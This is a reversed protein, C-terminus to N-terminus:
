RVFNLPNNPKGDVRVEFHLHPGTSFGTSGEYGVVDGKQVNAGTSTALKSMHAYLTALGNGHGVIVVKGYGGYWGTYLVNGSDAARIPSHNPGALDIGTHFKRVRFIPHRRWGFPSTISARLPMSMTGSGKTVVKDSGQSQSAKMMAMIQSELQNSERSLQHEAQEYFSRQSRLKEAVEEQESKEKNLLMAKKAIESVVDGLHMKQIGLQNKQAALKQAKVRLDAILKRDTEAVREQFYLLDMLQQLSAVQFMMDLLGLRQGEYMERLRQAAQLSMNNENAETKKLTAETHVIKTETHHLENKNSKLTINTHRLESTIKNLKALAKREKEKALLLKQHTEKKKAEIEKLHQKAEHARMHSHAGVASQETTLMLLSATAVQLSLCLIATGRTVSKSVPQFGASGNAAIALLIPSADAAYVFGGAPSASPKSEKKSALKAILSNQSEQM